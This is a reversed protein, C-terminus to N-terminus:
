GNRDAPVVVIPCRAHRVCHDAVSGLLLGAFGGHGRAGVVLLEAGRSEEILLAAPNGEVVASEVTAGGTDGGVEAVVRALLAAAVDRVAAEVEPLRPAPQPPLELVFPGPFETLPLRFVHVARVTASRPRAEALAFRLAARSGPSADVGVVIRGM